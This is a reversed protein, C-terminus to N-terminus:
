NCICFEIDTMFGRKLFAIGIHGKALGILKLNTEFTCLEFNWLLRWAICLSVVVHMAGHMCSVNYKCVAARGTLQLSENRVNLLLIQVIVKM